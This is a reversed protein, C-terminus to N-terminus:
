KSTCRKLLSNVDYWVCFKEPNCEKLVGMGIGLHMCNSCLWLFWIYRLYLVISSHKIWTHQPLRYRLFRQIVMTYGIICSNLTYKFLVSLAAWSLNDRKTVDFYVCVKHWYMYTFQTWANKNNASTGTIHIIFLKLNATRCQIM